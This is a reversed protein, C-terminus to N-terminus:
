IINLCSSAMIDLIMELGWKVWSPYSQGCNSGLFQGVTRPCASSDDSTPPRLEQQGVLFYFFMRLARRYGGWKKEPQPGERQVPRNTQPPSVKSGGTMVGFMDKLRVTSTGGATAVAAHTAM